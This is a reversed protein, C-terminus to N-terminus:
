EKLQEEEKNEEHGGDSFSPAGGPGGVRAAISPTGTPRTRRLATPPAAGLAAGRAGFCRPPPAM